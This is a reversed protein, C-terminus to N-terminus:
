VCERTPFRRLTRWSVRLKLLKSVVQLDRDSNEKKWLRRGNWIDRFRKSGKWLALELLKRATDAQQEAFRFSKL